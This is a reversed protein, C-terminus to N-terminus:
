STPNHKQEDKIEKKTKQLTSKFIENKIYNKLCVEQTLELKNLYFFLSFSCVDKPYFGSHKGVFSLRKRAFGLSLGLFLYWKLSM